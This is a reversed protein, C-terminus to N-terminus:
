VGGKLAGEQVEIIARMTKLQEEQQRIQEDKLSITGARELLMLEIMGIVSQQHTITQNQVAILEEQLHSLSIPQTM